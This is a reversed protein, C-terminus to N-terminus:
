DIQGFLEIAQRLRAAIRLDLIRVSCSRVAALSADPHLVDDVRGTRDQGFRRPHEHAVAVFEGPGYEFRDRPDAVRRPPAATGWDSRQHPSWHCKPQILTFHPYAHGENDPDRLARTPRCCRHAPLLRFPGQLMGFRSDIAGGLVRAVWGPQFLRGAPGAYPLGMRRVM